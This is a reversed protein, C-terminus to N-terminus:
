SSVTVNSRNSSRQMNGGDCGTSVVETKYQYTGARNFRQPVTFAWESRPWAILPDDCREIERTFMRRKGDPGILTVQRVIGDGDRALIQLDFSTRVRPPEAPDVGADVEPKEPGNTVDPGGNVVVRGAAVAIETSPGVPPSGAADCGSSTVVALLSYVGPRRYGHRFRVPASYAIMDSNSSCEGIFEYRAVQGDGFSIQIDFQSLAGDKVLVDVAVFTGALAVGPSVEMRASLPESRPGALADSAARASPTAAGVVLCPLLLWPSYRRTRTM